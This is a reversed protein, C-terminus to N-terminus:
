ISYPIAYPNLVIGAAGFFGIHLPNPPKNQKMVLPIWAFHTIFIHFRGHNIGVNEIPTPFAYNTRKIALNCFSLSIGKEPTFM